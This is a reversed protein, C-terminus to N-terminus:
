ASFGSNYKKGLHICYAETSGVNQEKYLGDAIM